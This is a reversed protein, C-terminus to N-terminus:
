SLKRGFNLSNAQFSPLSIKLFEIGGGWNGKMGRCIWRKRKVHGIKERKGFM